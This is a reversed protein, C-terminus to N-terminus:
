KGVKELVQGIGNAARDLAHTQTQESTPVATELGVLPM